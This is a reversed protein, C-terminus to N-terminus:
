LSKKSGISLFSFIHCRNYLENQINQPLLYTFDRLVLGKM